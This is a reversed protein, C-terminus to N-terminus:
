GYALNSLILMAFIILIILEFFAIVALLVWQNRTFPLSSLRGVAQIPLAVPEAESTFIEGEEVFEYPSVSPEADEEAEVAREPEPFKPEILAEVLIEIDEQDM